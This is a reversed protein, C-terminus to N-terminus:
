GALRIPYGSTTQLASNTVFLYVSDSPGFSGRNLTVTISGDAWFTPIQIERHTCNDYNVNNGIEVRAFTNDVYLDDVWQVGDTCGDLHQAEIVWSGRLSGNSEFGFNNASWYSVCDAWQKMRGTNNETCHFEIQFHTWKNSMNSIHWDPRNSIGMAMSWTPGPFGWRGNPTGASNNGHTRWFKIDRLATTPPLYYMWFDIYAPVPFPRLNAASRPTLSLYNGTNPGFGFLTVDTGLYALRASTRAGAAPRVRDNQLTPRPTHQHVIWGRTDLEEGVAGDMSDWQWPTHSPKTGFGGGWLVLASGHSRAGDVGTIALVGPPPPPPPSGAVIRVNGPPGPAQTQAHGANWGGAGLGVASGVLRGLFDRRNVHDM